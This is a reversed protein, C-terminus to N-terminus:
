KSSRGKQVEAAGRLGFMRGLFGGGTPIEPALPKDWLGAQRDQLWAQRIDSATKLMHELDDVNGASIAARLERWAAIAGDAVRILNDRNLLLSDRLASPDQSLVRTADEFLPGALKRMERWSAAASVSQLLILALALPLQEVGAILGDHEAADIFLPVAEVLRVLDTALHIAEPSAKASPTLCFLADKLLQPPAKSAAGISTSEAQAPRKLIPDGGVFNVETPLIEDAWRLVPAKLSATDMVLCGAKLSAAIAKLTDEIAHIPTALIVIDAERCAEILNWHVRQVAGIKQAERAVIPDRDHGVVELQGGALCLSQGISKGIVGLGVLTIKPKAM